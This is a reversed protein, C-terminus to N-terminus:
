KVLRYPDRRKRADVFGCPLMHLEKKPRHKEISDHLAEKKPVALIKPADFQAADEQPKRQDRKEKVGIVTHDAFRGIPDIDRDEEDGSGRRINIFRSAKVGIVLGAFGWGPLADGHKRHYREEEDDEGKGGGLDADESIRQCPFVAYLCRGRETHFSPMKM